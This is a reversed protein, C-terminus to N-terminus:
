PCGFDGLALNVCRFLVRSLDIIILCMATKICDPKMLQEFTEKEMMDNVIWINMKGITEINSYIYTYVQTKNM